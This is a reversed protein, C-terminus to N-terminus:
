ALTLSWTGCGYLVVLFIINRYIQIKINKFLLSSSLLNQVTLYWVNQSKLKSETKEHISRNPNKGFIQVKVREFSKFGIQVNDDQGAHQNQSM